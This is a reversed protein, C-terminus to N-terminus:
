RNIEIKKLIEDIREKSQGSSIREFIIRFDEEYKRAKRGKGMEECLQSLKAISLLAEFDSKIQLRIRLALRFKRFARTNEKNEMEIIALNHIMSAYNLRMGLSKFHKAAVEFIRRAAENRHMSSYVVGINTEIEIKKNIGGVREAITKSKELLELASNNNGESFYCMGLHLRGTFGDEMLELKTFYNRGSIKPNL